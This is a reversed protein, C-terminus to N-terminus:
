VTDYDDLDGNRLRLKLRNALGKLVAKEKERHNEKGLDSLMFWADDNCDVKEYEVCRIFEACVTDEWDSPMQLESLAGFFPLLYQQYEKVFPISVLELPWDRVVLAKVPGM